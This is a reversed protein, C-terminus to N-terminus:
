FIPIKNRHAYVLCFQTFASFKFVISFEIKDFSRRATNCIIDNQWKNKSWEFKAAFSFFVKKFTVGWDSIRTLIWKATRILFFFRHELQKFASNYIEWYTFRPIEQMNISTAM